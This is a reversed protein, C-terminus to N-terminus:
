RANAANGVHRSVVYVVGATGANDLSLSSGTSTASITIAAATASTTATLVSASVCGFPVVIVHTTLTPDYNIKCVVFHNGSRDDWIRFDLPVIAAM